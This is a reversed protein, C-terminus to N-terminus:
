FIFFVKLLLELNQQNKFYFCSIFFNCIELYNKIVLLDTFFILNGGM